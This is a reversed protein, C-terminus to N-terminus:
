DVAAAWSEIETEEKIYTLSIKRSWFYIFDVLQRLSLHADEFCSDARISKTFNCNLSPCHWIKGDNNRYRATVRYPINCNPCTLENHILGYRALWEIIYAQPEEVINRHTANELEELVQDSNLVSNPNVISTGSPPRGRQANAM